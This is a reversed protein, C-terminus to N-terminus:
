SFAASISPAPIVQGAGQSLAKGVGGLEHELSTLVHEGEPVEDLQVLFLDPAGVQELADVLLDFM